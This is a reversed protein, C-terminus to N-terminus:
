IFHLAEVPKFKSAKYAPYLASVITMLYIIINARIIKPWHIKSYIVPEWMGGAIEIGEILGSLDIGYKKTYFTGALGIISGIVLSVLALFNAELLILNRIKKPKCGIAMMIGFERVREFISMLITNLIGLAVVIFFILTFILTGSKEMELYKAMDPFSEEWSLIEYKNTDLNKRLKNIISPMYKIDKLLIPIETVNENFYLTQRLNNINTFITSLDMEPIGTKFIGSVRFLAYGLEDTASTSLLVIKDGLEVKLKKALKIGILVEQNATSATLYNGSVITNHLTTQKKEKLPDVGIIMSGVSNEPSSILGMTSLRLSYNKIEPHKKLDEIIDQPDEISNKISRDEHYDKAHIQIHGFHKIINDDVLKEAFGEVWCEFFILLALGFAIAAITIYTRRKNRWINRWALRLFINM